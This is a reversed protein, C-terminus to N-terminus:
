AADEQQAVIVGFLSREEASMEGIAGECEAISTPPRHLRDHIALWLSEDQGNFARRAAALFPLSLVPGRVPSVPTTPTEDGGLPVAAASGSPTRSATTALRSAPRHSVM